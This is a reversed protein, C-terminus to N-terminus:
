VRAFFINSSRSGMNATKDINLVLSLYIFFKMKRNQNEQIDQFLNRKEKTIKEKSCKQLM